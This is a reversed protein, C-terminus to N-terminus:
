PSRETVIELAQFGLGYLRRRLYEAEESAVTRPVVLWANKVKIPLSSELILVGNEQRLTVIAVNPVLVPGATEYRVIVDPWRPDAPKLTM